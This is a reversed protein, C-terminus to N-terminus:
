AAEETDAYLDATLANQAPSPTHGTDTDGQPPLSVPVRNGSVTDPVRDPRPQSVPVRHPDEHERFPTISHHRTAQGDVQAGIYSDAILLELATDVYAAKGKVTDRIARKSLGSHEEVARSVREMLVTPRFPEAADSTSGPPTLTVTIPNGPEIHATAIKKGSDEHERVRGHRDKEVKISIVGARTRSPRESAHLSYAVAVGSLKHQAGIAYRNRAERDKVVHDIEVVAAGKSALPRGLMKRFAAVNDNSNVELGFLSMAETVGDIVVLQFPARDLLALVAPPPAAQEPRVYALRETIGAPDGGLALVRAAINEPGDEFDLYLVHGGTNIIRASEHQMLLSKGSEPEGAFSHLEGPYLLCVDDSRPMLAPIPGIVRGDQVAAVYPGLDHPHWSTRPPAPVAEPDPPHQGHDSM